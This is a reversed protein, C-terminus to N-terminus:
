TTPASAWYAIVRWSRRAVSAGATSLLVAVLLVVLMLPWLGQHAYAITTFRGHAAEGSQLLLGIGWVAYAV